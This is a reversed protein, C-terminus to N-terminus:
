NYNFSWIEHAISKFLRKELVSFNVYRSINIYDYASGVLIRDSLGYNDYFFGTKWNNAELKSINTALYELCGFKKDEYIKRYM